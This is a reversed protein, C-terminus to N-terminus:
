DGRVVNFFDETGVQGGKLVLELGDLDGDAHARCLPAGPQLNAVWTLAYLGLEQVAHSATDGGCLLVRQVKTRELVERLIRGLAAGLRDGHPADEPTGLSTYLVTNRGAALAKVLEGVVARMAGVAGDFDLLSKPEAKVGCYGETLAFRLQRETVASCSGSVVLLPQSAEVRQEGSVASTL